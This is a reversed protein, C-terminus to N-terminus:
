AQATGTRHFPPCLLCTVAGENDTVASREEATAGEDVAASAVRLEFLLFCVAFFLSGVVPVAACAFEEREEAEEEEEEEEEVTAAADEEEEEEMAPAAEEEEEEAAAEEGVESQQTLRTLSAHSSANSMHASHM